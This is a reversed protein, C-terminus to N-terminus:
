DGLEIILNSYYILKKLYDREKKLSAIYEPSSKALKARQKKLNAISGKIKKIQKQYYALKELATSEKKDAAEVKPQLAPVTTVTTIVSFCILANVIKTLNNKRM